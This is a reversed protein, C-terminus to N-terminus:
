SSMLSKLEQVFYQPALIADETDLMWITFWFLFDLSCGCLVRYHLFELLRDSTCTYFM